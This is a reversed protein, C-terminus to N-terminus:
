KYALAVRRAYTIKVEGGRYLKESSETTHAFIFAFTSPCTKVIYEKQHMRFIKYMCHAYLLGFCIGNASKIIWPNDSNVAYMYVGALFHMHKFFISIIHVHMYLIHVHM